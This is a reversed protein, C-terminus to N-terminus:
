KNKETARLCIFCSAKGNVTVMETFERGCWFCRHKQKKNKMLM